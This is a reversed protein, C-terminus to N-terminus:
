RQDSPATKQCIGLLLKKLSWKSITTLIEKETFVVNLVIYDSAINLLVFM